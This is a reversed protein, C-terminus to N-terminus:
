RNYYFVLSGYTHIINRWLHYQICQFINPFRIIFNENHYMSISHVTISTHLSICVSVCVFCELVNSFKTGFILRWLYYWSPLLQNIQWFEWEFRINVLIPFRGCILDVDSQCIKTKKLLFLQMIKYYPHINQPM